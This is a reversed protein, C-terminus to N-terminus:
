RDVPCLDKLQARITSGGYHPADIIEAVRRIPLGRNSRPWEGTNPGGLHIGLLNFEDDVIPAGSASDETSATHLFRTAHKEVGRIFGSSTLLENRDLFEFVRIMTEPALVEATHATPIEFWGRKENGLNDDGIAAALRVIAFDLTSVDGRHFTEIVQPYIIWDKSCPHCLKVVTRDGGTIVYDLAGTNHVEATIRQPDRDILEGTEDFFLHAATLVASPGVLFGTGFHTDGDLVFSVIRNSTRITNLLEQSVSTIPSGSQVIFNTIKFNLGYTLVEIFKRSIEKHFHSGSKERREGFDALLAAVHGLLEDIQKGTESKENAVQDESM